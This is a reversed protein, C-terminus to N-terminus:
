WIMSTCAAMM